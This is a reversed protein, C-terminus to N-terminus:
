HKKKAILIGIGTQVPLKNTVNVLKTVRKIELLVCDYGCLQFSNECIIRETNVV